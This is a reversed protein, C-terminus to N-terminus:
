DMFLTVTRTLCHKQSITCPRQSRRAITPLQIRSFFRTFKLIFFILCGVLWTACNTICTAVDSYQGFFYWLAVRRIFHQLSRHLNSDKVIVPPFKALARIGKKALLKIIPNTDPAFLADIAHAIANIASTASLEQPLTMTLNADHIVTGRLIKHDRRTTKVNNATKGLNPTM